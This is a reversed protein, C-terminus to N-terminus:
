FPIEEAPAAAGDAPAGGGLAKAMAAEVLDFDKEDLDKGPKNNTAQKVLAILDADKEGRPFAYEKALDQIRSWITPQKPAAAKGNGNGNAAAGTKLLTITRPKKRALKMEFSIPGDIDPSGRVRIGGTTERGIKVQPDFWLTIRKGIWGDTETGFMKVLAKKNTVNIVWGKEEDELTVVGKNESTNDDRELLELKVGLIKRTIDKGMFEVGKIYKSPTLLDAHM